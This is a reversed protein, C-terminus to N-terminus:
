AVDHRFMEEIKESKTENQRMFHISNAALFPQHKRCCKKQFIFSPKDDERKGM